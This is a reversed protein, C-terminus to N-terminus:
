ASGKEKAQKYALAARLIKDHEMAQLLHRDDGIFAAKEVAELLPRSREYEDLLALIDREIGLDKGLWERDFDNGVVEIEHEYWSRRREVRERLEEVREKTITTM